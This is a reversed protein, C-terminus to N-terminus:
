QPQLQAVLRSVSAVDYFEALDAHGALTEREKGDILIKVRTIGPQNAALTEVLSLVTLEEVLIGSRHGDAFVDNVDIIALNGNVIYVDRIDAGGPLSHTTDKDTYRGLLARLLERDRETPEAPLNIVAESRRLIGQADDALYFTVRESRGAVPPTLPRELEATKAPVQKARREIIGVYISTAIAALVLLSLTIKMHRPIM